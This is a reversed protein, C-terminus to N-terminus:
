SHNMRKKYAAVTRHKSVHKSSSNLMVCVVNSPIRWLFLVFTDSQRTSVDSTRAGLMADGDGLNVVLGGIRFTLRASLKELKEGPSSTSSDIM